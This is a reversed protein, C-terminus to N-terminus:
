HRRIPLANWVNVIRESFFVNKKNGLQRLRLPTTLGMTTPESPRGNDM